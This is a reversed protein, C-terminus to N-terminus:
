PKQLWHLRLWELDEPRTVKLNDARGEVLRPALGALEMASAEDTIAARGALAAGLAERLAGLRFMQPTFAQWIHSRDVTELVRGDPRRQQINGTTAGAAYRAYNLDDTYSLHRGLNGIYSARAVMNRMVERELTLNYTQQYSPQFTPAFAGFSGLPTIFDSDPKPVFPAFSAPFPNGAGAYPDEFRVGFRTM